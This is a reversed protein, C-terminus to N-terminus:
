VGIVRGRYRREIRFVFASSITGGLTRLTRAPCGRCIRTLDEYLSCCACGRHEKSSMTYSGNRLLAKVGLPLGCVPIRIREEHLSEFPWDM